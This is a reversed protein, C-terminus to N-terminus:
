PNCLTEPHSTGKWIPPHTQRPGTLLNEDWACVSNKGNRKADYLAQDARHLLEDPKLIIPPQCHAVGFSATLRNHALPMQAIAARVKEAACIAGEM